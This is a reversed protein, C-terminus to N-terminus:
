ARYPTRQATRQLAEAAEVISAARAKLESACTELERRSGLKYGENSSVVPAGTERLQHIIDRIEAESIKIDLHDIIAHRLTRNNLWADPHNEFSNQLTEEVIQQPTLFFIGQEAERLELLTSKRM